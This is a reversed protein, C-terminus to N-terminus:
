EHEEDYWRELRDVRGDLSDRESIALTRQSTIRQEIAKDCASSLGLVVAVAGAIASVFTPMTVQTAM